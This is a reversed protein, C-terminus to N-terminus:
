AMFCPSWTTWTRRKPGCQRLCESESASVEADDEDKGNRRRRMHFPSPNENSGFLVHAFLCRRYFVRVLTSTSRERGGSEGEYDM